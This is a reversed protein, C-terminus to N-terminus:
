EQGLKRIIDPVSRKMITRVLHQLTDSPLEDRNTVASDTVDATYRLSERAAGHRWPEVSIDVKGTSEASFLGKEENLEITAKKLILGREAGAPLSQALIVNFGARSLERVYADALLDAPAIDTLLNGTRVGNSDSIPGLVRPASAPATQTVVYLDGTGGSVQTVPQYLLNVKQDGLSACGSVLGVILICLVILQLCKVPACM